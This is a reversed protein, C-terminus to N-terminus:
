KVNPEGVAAEPVHPKGIWKRLDATSNPHVLAFPSQTAKSGSIVSASHMTRPPKRRTIIAAIQQREFEGATLHYEILFEALSKRDANGAEPVVKPRTALGIERCRDPMNDAGLLCLYQKLGRRVCTGDGNLRGPKGIPQFLELPM